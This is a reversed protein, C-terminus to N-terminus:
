VFELANRSFPKLLNCRLPFAEDGAFVFLYIKSVNNVLKRAAPLQLLNRNIARTLYSNAYVSSDNLRGYDGIDIM